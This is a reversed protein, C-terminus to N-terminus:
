KSFVLKRFIEREQVNEFLKHYSECFWTLDLEISTKM